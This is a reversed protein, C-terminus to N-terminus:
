FPIQEAVYQLNELDLDHGANVGLGCERAKLATQVYPAVAEEKNRKYGVAYSETYLEIRDAGTKAAAEV